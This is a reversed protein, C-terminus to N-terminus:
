VFVFVCKASGVTGVFVISYKYFYKILINRFCAMRQDCRIIKFLGSLLKRVIHEQYLESRNRDFNLIWGCISLFWSVSEFLSMIFKRVFGLDAISCYNSTPLHAIREPTRLIVYIISYNNSETNM